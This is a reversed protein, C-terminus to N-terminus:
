SPYPTSHKTMYAACVAAATDGQTRREPFELSCRGHHDHCCSSCRPGNTRTHTRPLEPFLHKQSQGQRVKQIASSSVGILDALQRTTLESRTLIMYVDDATLKSANHVIRDLNKVAAM